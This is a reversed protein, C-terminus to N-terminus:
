ELREFTVRTAILCTTGYSYVYFSPLTRLKTTPVTYFNTNYSRFFCIILFIIVLDHAIVHLTPLQSFGRPPSHFKGDMYLEQADVFAALSGYNVFVLAEGGGAVVRGYFFQREGHMDM